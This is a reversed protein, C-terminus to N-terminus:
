VLRDYMTMVQEVTFDNSDCFKGFQEEAVKEIRVAHRRESEGGLCKSVESQYKAFYANIGGVERQEDPTKATRGQWKRAREQWEEFDAGKLKELAEKQFDDFDDAVAKLARTDRVVAFKAKADTMKTLKSPHLLNYLEVIEGTTMAVEGEKLQLENEAM